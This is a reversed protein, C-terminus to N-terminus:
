VIRRDHKFENVDFNPCTKTSVQYHGIVNFAPIGYVIRLERVKRELSDFQAQTFSDVGILCIGFYHNYGKAHAGSWYEPRGNEITGDELIVYHYGIGDFGRDKHWTHIIEANDSRGQPSDSCHIVIGNERSM